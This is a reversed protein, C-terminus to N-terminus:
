GDNALKEEYFLSIFERPKKHGQAKFVRVLARYAEQHDSAEKYIGYLPRTAVVGDRHRPCGVDQHLSFARFQGQRTEHLKFPYLRCLMPRISYITCQRKAKNLFFCGKKEDRRLAMVYKEGDCRLWTPDSKEVGEIEEPTLFELFTKPHLGAAKVIQITDFPTPLCIVDICCHLCRHCKFYVLNKGM